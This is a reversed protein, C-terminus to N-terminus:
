LPKRTLVTFTLNVRGRFGKARMYYLSGKKAPIAKKGAKELALLLSKMETHTIVFLLVSKKYEWEGRREQKEQCISKDQKGMAYTNSGYKEYINDSM